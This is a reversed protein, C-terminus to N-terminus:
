AIRHSVYLMYPVQACGRAAAAGLLRHALLRAPAEEEGAPAREGRAAEGVGGGLLDALLGPERAARQVVLEAVLAAEELRDHADSRASTASCTALSVIDPPM